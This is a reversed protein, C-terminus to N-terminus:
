YYLGIKFPVSVCIDSISSQLSNYKSLGSYSQFKGNPLNETLICTVTKMIVVDDIM